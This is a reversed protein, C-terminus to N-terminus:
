RGGSAASARIVDRLDQLLESLGPPSKAGAAKPLAPEQPSRRADHLTPGRVFKTEHHRDTEVDWRGGGGSAVRLMGRRDPALALVVEAGPAFGAVGPVEVLLKGVQGGPVRVTITAAPEGKLTEHVRFRTDTVVLSHDENWHSASSIATAHVIASASAVIQTVDAPAVTSSWAPRVGGFVLVASAIAVCQSRLHSSRHSRTM